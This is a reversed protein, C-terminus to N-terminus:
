PFVLQIHLFLLFFSLTSSFFSSQRVSGTSSRNFCESIFPITSKMSSSTSSALNFYECGNSIISPGRIAPIFHQRPNTQHRCFTEEGPQLFRWLSSSPRLCVQAMYPGDGTGKGFPLPQVSSLILQCYNQIDFLPDSKINKISLIQLFFDFCDLGPQILVQPLSGLDFIKFPNFNLLCCIIPCYM